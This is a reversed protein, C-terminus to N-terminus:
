YYITDMSLIEHDIQGPASDRISLWTVLYSYGACAYLNFYYDKYKIYLARCLRM